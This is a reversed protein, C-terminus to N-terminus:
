FSPRIRGEQIKDLRALRRALSPHTMFLGMLGGRGFPNAIYLHAMAPTAAALPVQEAAAHIKRLARQLAAPDNTLAAAGEDAAYERSRSIAMQVLMAALPALVILAIM